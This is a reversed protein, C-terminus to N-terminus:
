LIGDDAMKMSLQIRKRPLDVSMVRVHVHQHIKVIESPDSVFRDALQSIHILGNEKIGIDVFCGFATINTVIGPLEMGINLDEIKRITKDFEFVELTSRPDLGPKDLELLIDKLTPMGIDEQIYKELQLANRKEKTKILEKVTCDADKAMQEVLTYREPHVATNDLINEAEPIRLFGAAQEFAKAGLKPVKLLERRSKFAGNSNRHEIIKQALGESLGSVYTLLYKSATNVNIGVQNVCSIVTQDLSKKLMGQDVDHQYQGVGISKPEIKVLEALPDMLRRGISVAGRVTVDYDPFEERAIKSASYISAGNESVVFIQLTRDYRVNQIFTETERSATGNGIAIAEIAYSEVLHAIKRSAQAADHQPANPYITENHLLKGQADLCVVKCGTRFGPDIGMVKKQGLPAALLLQKLNDAFIQIAARDAKEKIIAAFETQISPKMLRKYGDKVAESVQMSTEFPGIIFISLLDERAKDDDIDISVRLFGDKEGRTIALYRHSTCKRFDETYNYYDKYKIAEEEKGKIVKSAITAQRKFRNRIAQRGRENENVWEAIIDRAGSLAEEIKVVETSLFKRASTEVDINKQAMLLKALPELGKERAIEARTRRKPKYPLYIDELESSNYCHEIRTKLEDTLQNQEAITSLISQKRKDLETLKTRLEAIDGIQVEDLGGTKEKRYRSIFPITADQDLLLLTNRVSLPNLKLEFVIRNIYAENM